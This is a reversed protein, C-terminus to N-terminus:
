PLVGHPCGNQSQAGNRSDNEGGKNPRDGACALAERLLRRRTAVVDKVAVLRGRDGGGIVLSCVKDREAFRRSFCGFCFLCRGFVGGVGNCQVVDHRDFAIVEVLKKLFGAVLSHHHQKEVSQRHHPKNRMGRRVRLPVNNMKRQLPVVLRARGPRRDQAARERIAALHADAYSEFVSKRHIARLGVLKVITGM